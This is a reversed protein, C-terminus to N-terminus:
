KLSEAIQIFPILFIRILAKLSKRKEIYAAAVPGHKYYFKVFERGFPNTMLYKDRFASLAQVEDAMQTGYCATAIFCDKKKEGGTDDGSSKLKFEARIAKNSDLTITIIEHSGSADGGWNSFEYGSSAIARVTVDTGSVYTYTDPAPNTTGGTSTTITLTYEMNFNATIFKDSDMIVTLPNDTGTANGGWGMFTRGSDPIATVEVQDGPNYFYNGPPPDTTGGLESSITLAYLDLLNNKYASGGNTGAYLINNQDHLELSLVNSTTLGDNMASWNSGYDKSVYIGFNGAAFIEGPLAPNVKICRTDLSATKTWSSGSDDSIYIGDNTGALIKNPSVPDIALSTIQMWEQNFSTTGIETWSSGGDESKFLGGIYDGTLNRYQGGVYIINSNSPDLVVANGTGYSSTMLYHGWTNGGDLSRYLAM